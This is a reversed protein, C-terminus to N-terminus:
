LRSPGLVTRVCSIPDVGYHCLPHQLNPSIVSAIVTTVVVVVVGGRSRSASSCTVGVPCCWAVFKQTARHSLHKQVSPRERHAQVYVAVYACQACTCSSTSMVTPKLPVVYVPWPLSSTFPNLRRPTKYATVSTESSPLSLYRGFTQLWKCSWQRCCWNHKM